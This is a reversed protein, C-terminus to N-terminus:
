QSSSATHLAPRYPIPRHSGTRELLPWPSVGAILSEFVGALDRSRDYLANLHTGRNSDCNPM